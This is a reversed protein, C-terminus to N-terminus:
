FQIAVVYWKGDAGQALRLPRWVDRADRYLFELHGRPLKRPPGDALMRPPQRKAMQRFSASTRNGEVKSLSVPARFPAGARGADVLSVIEPAVTRRCAPSLLRQFAPYDGQKMLEIVHAATAAADTRDLTKASGCAALLALLGCGHMVLWTLRPNPKSKVFM